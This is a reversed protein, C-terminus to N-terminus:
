AQGEQKAHSRTVLRFTPPGWDNAEDDYHATYTGTGAPRHGDHYDERDASQHWATHEWLVTERNLWVTVNATPLRKAYAIASAIAANCTEFDRVHHLTPADHADRPPHEECHLTFLDPM